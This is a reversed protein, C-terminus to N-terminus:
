KKTEKQFQNNKSELLRNLMDRKQDIAYMIQSLGRRIASIILLQEEAQRYRPHSRYVAETIQMNRHRTGRLFHEPSEIFELVLTSKEFGLLAAARQEELEIEMLLGAFYAATSPLAAADAFLDSTDIKLRENFEAMLKDLTEETYVKKPKEPQIIEEM